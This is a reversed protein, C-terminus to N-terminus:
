RCTAASRPSEFMSTNWLSRSRASQIRWSAPWLSPQPLGARRDHHVAAGRAARITGPSVWVPELASRSPSPGSLRQGTEASAVPERGLGGPLLVPCGAAASVRRPDQRGRLLRRRGTGGHDPCADGDPESPPRFRRGHWSCAKDVTIYTLRSSIPKEIAPRRRRGAMTAGPTASSRAPRATVGSGGDHRATGGTRTSSDAVRRSRVYIVRRKHLPPPAPCDAEGSM